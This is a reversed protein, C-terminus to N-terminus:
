SMEKFVKEKLFRRGRASKFYIERERAKIREKFEEKYIVKWPRYRRSYIAKGRNHEILRRELDDTMGIYSKKAIESKLVYVIYM